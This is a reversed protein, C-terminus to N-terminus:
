VLGKLFFGLGDWGLGLCVCVNYEEVGVIFVRECELCVVELLMFDFGFLVFLGLFLCFGVLLRFWCWM